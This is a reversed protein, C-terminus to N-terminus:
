YEANEGPISASINGKFLINHPDLCNLNLPVFIPGRLPDSKDLYPLALPDNPIPVMQLGCAQVKRAWQHLLEAVISGSAVLWEVVLEYAQDSRFTTQYKVHGWELRDSKNTSDIDLFMRKFTSDSFEDPQLYPNIDDRLFHPVGEEPDNTTISPSHSTGWNLPEKIEVEMWDSQFTTIDWSQQIRDKDNQHIIYYLFFGQIFPKGTDGSAHCILKDRQMATFIKLAQETTTVGEMHTILWNIADSSIFTYTPLCQHTPPLLGLGNVPQKMAELIETFSANPRLLPDCVINDDNGSDQSQADSLHQQLIEIAPSARGKEM